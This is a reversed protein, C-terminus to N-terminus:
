GGDSRRPPVVILSAGALVRFCQRKPFDNGNVIPFGDDAGLEQSILRRHPALMAANGWSGDGVFQQL